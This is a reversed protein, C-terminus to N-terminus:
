FRFVLGAAPIIASRNFTNQTSTAGAPKQSYHASFYNVSVVLGVSRSLEGELSLRTQYAWGSWREKPAGTVKYDAQIFPTGLVTFYFVEWFRQRVGAMPGLHVIGVSTTDSSKYSESLLTYNFVFHLNSKEYFPLTLFADGYMLATNKENSLTHATNFFNGELGLSGANAVPTAFLAILSLTLLLSRMIRRYGDTFYM